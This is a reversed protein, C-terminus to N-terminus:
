RKLDEYLNCTIKKIKLALCAAARHKGSILVYHKSSKKIVCILKNKYKGKSYGHKNISDVIHRIRRGLEKAYEDAYYNYRDMSYQVFISDSLTRTFNKPDRVYDKACLYIPTNYFQLPNGDHLHYKAVVHCLEPKDM